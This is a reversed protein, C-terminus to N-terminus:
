NVDHAVLAPGDVHLTVVELEGPLAEVADLVSLQGALELVHGVLRRRRVEPAGHFGDAACRGPHQTTCEIAALALRALDRGHGVAAGRDEHAAHVNEVRAGLRSPSCPSGNPAVGREPFAPTIGAWSTTSAPRPAADFAPASPQM